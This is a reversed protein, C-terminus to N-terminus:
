FPLERGPSSFNSPTEACGTYPFGRVPRRLVKQSGSLTRLLGSLPKSNLTGEIARCSSRKQAGQVRFFFFWRVPRRLVKQFGSPTRLLGNRTQTDLTGLIASRLLSTLDFVLSETHNVQTPCKRWHWGVGVEPGVESRNRSRSSKM